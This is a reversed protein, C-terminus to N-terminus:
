PMIQWTARALEIRESLMRLMVTAADSPSGQEAREKAAKIKLDTDDEVATGAYDKGLVDLGRQAELMARPFDGGDFAKRGAALRATASDLQKKRPDVPAEAVEPASPSASTPPAAPGTDTQAEGSKPGGGCGLAMSIGFWAIHKRM